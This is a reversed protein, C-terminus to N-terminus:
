YAGPREIVIKGTVARSELATHAAAIHAFPFAVVPPHVLAGREMLHTILAVGATRTAEPLVVQDAKTSPQSRQALPEVSSVIVRCTMAFRVAKMWVTM